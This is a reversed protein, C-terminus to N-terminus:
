GQRSWEIEVLHVKRNQSLFVAILEPISGLGGAKNPGTALWVVCNRDGVHLM